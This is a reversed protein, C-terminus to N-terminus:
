WTTEGHDLFPPPPEWAAKGRVKRRHQEAQAWRDLDLRALALCLLRVTWKAHHWDRPDVRYSGGPNAPGRDPHPLHQEAM